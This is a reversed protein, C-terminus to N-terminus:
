LHSSKKKYVCVGGVWKVGGEKECDALRGAVCKLTRNRTASACPLDSVRLHEPFASKLPSEMMAAAANDGNKERVM